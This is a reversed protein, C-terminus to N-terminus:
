RILVKKGNIIYLGKNLGSLDTGKKVLRGHLDYITYSSNNDMIGEIGADTFNGNEWGFTYTYVDNLVFNDYAGQLNLYGRPVTLVYTGNELNLNNLDIILGHFKENELSVEGKATGGFNYQLETQQGKENTLTVEENSLNYTAWEAYPWVVNIVGNEATIEPDIWLNRLTFVYDMPPNELGEGNVVLGVPFFIEFQYGAYGDTYEAIDLYIANAPKDASPTMTVNGDKDVNVLEYFDAPIMIRWGDQMGYDPFGCVFETEPADSPISIEQYDWTLIFPKVETTSVSEPASVITAMPMGDWNMYELWIQENVYYEGVRVLGEPLEISYLVGRPLKSLDFSLTKNDDLILYSEIYTPTSIWDNKKRVTIYQSDLIPNIEEPFTVEVNQLEEATYMGDKPSVSTPAIPDVKTFTLTQYANTNGKEDKVLGDPIDIIYPGVPHGAEYAEFSFDIVLENGWSPDIFTQGLDTALESDFYVEAYVEYYKGGMEVFVTLEEDAITIQKFDYVLTVTQLFTQFENPPYPNIVTGEGLAQANASLSAGALLTTTLLKTIIKM